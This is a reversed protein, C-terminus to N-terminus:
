KEIKIEFLEVIRKAIEDVENLQRRPGNIDNFEAVTLLQEVHHHLKKLDKGYYRFRPNQCAYVINGKEQEGIPSSMIGKKNLAEIELISGPGPKTIVVDAANLYDQMTTTFGIIKVKDDDSFRETLSELLDARKGCMVIIQYGKKALYKISKVQSNGGGGGGTIVIVPHNTNLGLEKLLDERPKIKKFKPDIPYLPYVIKKMELGYRVLTTVADTIPSFVLDATDDAWGRMLTLLDTIITVTKLSPFAKLKLEKLVMSTMPHVSVVMDPKCETVLRLSEKYMRSTVYNYFIPYFWSTNSLRFFFNNIKLLTANRTFLEYSEQSTNFPEVDAEKFLDLMTVEFQDPYNLHLTKLLAEAASRHGNGVNAYLILIRKKNM